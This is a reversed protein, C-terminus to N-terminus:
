IFIYIYIYINIYSLTFVGVARWERVQVRVRMCARALVQCWGCWVRFAFWGVLWRRLFFDIAFGCPGVAPVLFLSFQFAYARPKTYDLLFMQFNLCRPLCLACMAVRTSVVRCTCVRLRVPSVMGNPLATVLCLSEVSTNATTCLPRHVDKTQAPLHHNTTSASWTPPACARLRQRTKANRAQALGIIM